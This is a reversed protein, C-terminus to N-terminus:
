AVYGTKRLLEIGRRVDDVDVVAGADLSLLLAIDLPPTTGDCHNLLGEAAARHNAGFKEKFFAAEDERLRDTMSYVLPGDIQRAPCSEEGERRPRTAAPSALHNRVDRLMASRDALAASGIISLSKAREIEIGLALDLLRAASGPELFCALEAARGLERVSYSLLHNWTREAQDADPAAASALAGALVSAQKLRTPDLKDITDLDTHWYPDDHGLMMAPLRHPNAAFVLHDSGGSPLDFSWHLPRSSGRPSTTSAENGVQRALPEVLANAFHPTHNAIRFIRLPQGIRDPSAGIMDLNLVLAVDRLSEAHSAAWPLSGYFEPMWLFRAGVRLPASRLAHAIEVLTAAGSANDNASGRPHCLHATFLVSAGGAASGAVEAEIVRLRGRSFNAEMEGRLTVPGKALARVLRDAARRSVSWAPVLSSIEDWRPFISQYQVDVVGVAGRRAARPVAESARACVLAVRGALDVADYAADGAAAGLHAVEGEFVGGPSHVVVSQATDAFDAILRESAGTQVLRGSRVNWAPPATWEYTKSAGDAPFEHVTARLGAEDLRRLVVDVAADYGFSGPVRHHRAIETATDLIRTGSIRGSLEGVVEDSRM